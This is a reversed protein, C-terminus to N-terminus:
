LRGETAAPAPPESTREAARKWIAEIIQVMALGFADATKDHEPTRGYCTATIKGDKSGFTVAWDYGHGYVVGAAPCAVADCPGVTKAHLKM